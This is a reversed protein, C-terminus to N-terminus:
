DCYKPSKIFPTNILCEEPYNRGKDQITMVAKGNPAIFGRPVYSHGAKLEVKLNTEATISSAYYDKAYRVTINYSGPNLAIGKTHRGVGMPKISVGDIKTISFDNSSHESLMVIEEINKGEVPHFYMTKAPMVGCASIFGTLILTIIKKNM